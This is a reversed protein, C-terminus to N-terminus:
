KQNLNLFPLSWSGVYYDGSAGAPYCCYASRVSAYPYWTLVFCGLVSGNKAGENKPSQEGEVLPLAYGCSSQTHPTLELNKSDKDNSEQKM